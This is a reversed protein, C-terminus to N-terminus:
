IRKIQKKPHTSIKPMLQPLGVPLSSLRDSPEGLEPLIQGVVKAAV